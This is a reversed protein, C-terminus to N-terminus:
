VNIYLGVIANGRVAIWLKKFFMRSHYHPYLVSRKWSLGLRIKLFMVTSTYSVALIILSIFLYKWHCNAALDYAFIWDATLDFYYLSPMLITKLLPIIYNVIKKVNM